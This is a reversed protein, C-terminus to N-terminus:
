LLAGSHQVLFCIEASSSPYHNVEHSQELYSWLFVPSTPTFVLLFFSIQFSLLCFISFSFLPFGLSHSLFRLSECVIKRSDWWLPPASSASIKNEAETYKQCRMLMLGLSFVALSYVSLSHFFITKDPHSNPINLLSIILAAFM